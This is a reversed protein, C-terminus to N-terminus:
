LDLVLRVSKARSCCPLFRDNLLREDPTLCHDRHDPVGDLVFTLCTGCVGEGCDVPLQFGHARLAQAATQHPPVHVVAASRKLELEFSGDVEFPQDQVQASFHEQHLRDAHWGAQRAVALAQSMFGNPGCVYLHKDAAPQALLAPLQLQQEAPEDDFYFHVHGAFPSHRLEDYFAARDRSRACYHLEFRQQRRTLAHAMSILPTIGIGGALLIAHQDVPALAFRNRPSSIELLDGEGVLDHLAKSGGRTQPNLHVGLVYRHREAPDNCLSYARALDSRLHVQVHAGAEFAPLTSGTLAVLELRCVGLAEQAKHLVKVTLTDQM